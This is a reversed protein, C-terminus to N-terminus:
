VLRDCHGCKGTMYYVFCNQEFPNPINISMNGYITRELVINERQRQNKVHARWCVYRLHASSPQQGIRNEFCCGKLGSGLAKVVTGLWEGVVYVYTLKRAKPFNAETSSGNSTCHFYRIRNTRWCLPIGPCKLQSIVSVNSIIKREEINWKLDPLLLPLHKLTLMGKQKWLNHRHTNTEQRDNENGHGQGQSQFCKYETKLQPRCMVILCTSLKSVFYRESPFHILYCTDISNM